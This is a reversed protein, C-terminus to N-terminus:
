AASGAALPRYTRRTTRRRRWLRLVGAGVLLVPVGIINGYKVASRTAASTFVLPPPARNKSRIGILADDQALWDIANEVFVLNEPANRAYRDSAFDSSGVVVLRGRLAGKTTDPGPPSALLAVLRRRLSDRSFERSPDLFATTEEVGGARSTVFLPTVTKPRAHATDIHSSWPLLVAELDANVPSAKTSLARPWFPYPVFVQGFQSPMGVQANSALDYVMDSAIAVGYPELLANWGVRRSVAFPPGQQSVQLQMGGAMLLLSGGRELFGRLRAIQVDSLSDPTGAVAVVRVGPAITSDTLGFPRVDYNRGLRERLADFSRQGRTAAADSIEGFAIAAKEPHTLARIDSTLRYELDNTQQVFPMTKVGDAYRVALGLYGEKVQLEAQGLVNFQVPPIRLTRAERLAASDASPDAIVLKVKGRGAARYDNLLDDVDRKLFSVEPPLAASAFLKVTVLDPLSGLMQRTARSLTFSNGPTLDIRGGIHRGFLNVVIMAVALLATGLRLRKIAEGHPTVKRSLLSFYAFVLFLVALTVFYVADRLDIVGRGISSFHSLVGLSAAISGLQAPLGVILPDLGVLILAFTVTVALIFATVQNRTVSSAWVGVGALGLILLAAGVYQAVVIGLQPATGLALGLPITLTIALALWLFLVQGLYKGLLLELQSIPQALVVELTGSRTDEALARMTVAPVLFLLVWPLFDLMPRLSAVGYLEIQRFSLFGNVGTFVVLLIYGTPQDFLAKLERRAITWTARM